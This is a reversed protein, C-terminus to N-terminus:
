GGDAGNALRVARPGPYLPVARGKAPTCTGEQWLKGERVWERVRRAADRVGYQELDEVSMLTTIEM